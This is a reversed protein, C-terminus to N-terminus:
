EFVHMPKLYKVKLPGGGFGSLKNLFGVIRIPDLVNSKKIDILLAEDLSDFDLSIALRDDILKNIGNGENIIEMFFDYLQSEMDTIVFFPCIEEEYGYGYDPDSLPIETFYGSCNIIGLPFATDIAM